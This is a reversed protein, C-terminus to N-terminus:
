SSKILNSNYYHPDHTVELGVWVPLDPLESENTLEIEALVLPANGDIFEDIVWERELYQVHYRHKRVIVSCLEELMEVAKQTDTLEIEYEKRTITSHKEKVTLWAKVFWTGWRAIRIRVTREENNTIYGQIILWPTGLKPKLNQWDNVLFKREIELAM